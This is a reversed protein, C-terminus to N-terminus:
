SKDRKDKYIEESIMLEFVMKRIWAVDAAKFDAWLKRWSHFPVGYWIALGVFIIVNSAVVYRHRFWKFLGKM